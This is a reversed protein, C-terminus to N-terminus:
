LNYVKCLHDTGRLWCLEALDKRKELLAWLLLDSITDNENKDGDDFESFFVFVPPWYAKVIEQICYSM